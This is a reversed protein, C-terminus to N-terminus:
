LESLIVSLISRNSYGHGHRGTSLLPAWMLRQVDQESRVRIAQRIKFRRAM